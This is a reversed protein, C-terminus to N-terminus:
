KGQNRNGTACDVLCTRASINERTSGDRRIISKGLKRREIGRDSAVNQMVLGIRDGRYSSRCRCYTLVTNNGEMLRCAMDAPKRKRDGPEVYFQLVAEAGNEVHHQRMTIDTSPRDGRSNACL